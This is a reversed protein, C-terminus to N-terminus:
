LNFECVATGTGLTPDNRYVQSGTIAAEASEPFRIKTIGGMCERFPPIVGTLSTVFPFALEGTLSACGKFGDAKLVRINPARLDLVSLNLGNMLFYNGFSTMNEATTHFERVMPAYVKYYDFTKVNFSVALTGFDDSLKVTYRGPAPYTHTKRTLNTVTEVTGDGWSVIGQAHGEALQGQYIGWKLNEATTEIVFQTGVFPLLTSKCTIRM